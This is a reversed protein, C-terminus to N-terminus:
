PPTIIMMQGSPCVRHQWLPLIGTPSNESYRVLTELNESDVIDEPKVITNLDRVLLNGQTKRQVNQLATKVTNYESVRVQGYDL